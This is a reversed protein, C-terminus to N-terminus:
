LLNFRKVAIKRAPSTAFYGDLGDGRVDFSGFDAALDAGVLSRM